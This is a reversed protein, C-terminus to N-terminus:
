DALMEEDEFVLLTLIESPGVRFTQELIEYRHADRRDFWAEASVYKMQSTTMSKNVDFLVDMASSEAQLEKRPFWHEPILSSRSFWCRGHQNHCIIFAPTNNARYMSLSFIAQCEIM